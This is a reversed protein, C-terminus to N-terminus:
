IDETYMTLRVFPYRKAAAQFILVANKPFKRGFHEISSIVVVENVGDKSAIKLSFAANEETSSSGDELIFLSRDMGLDDTLHRYFAEAESIGAKPNAAGGSLIIRDPRFIDFARRTIECRKLGKESLSGDDNLRNGLIIFYRM